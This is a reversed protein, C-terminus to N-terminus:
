LNGKALTADKEHNGLLSFLGRTHFYKDPWRYNNSRRHSGRKKEFCSLISRLRRRMYGDLEKFVRSSRKTHKFYNYWGRLMPNLEEITTMLSKGKKRPTKDKIKARLSNITKDRPRRKNETFFYGLFEFGEEKTVEVIKTKEPHLTLKLQTMVEKVIELGRNAEEATKCMLVFDDAYRIIKVGEKTMREDLRHLYINSLLPSIVSGQPSGVIPTWRKHGEMIDNSLFKKLINLVWKDAIREEVFSMLLKHDITDFYGKIDADVVFKYGEDLYQAVERLADKAGRNPRFGYSCSLFMVEFIAEIALKIANEVVRQKVTPIGLPRKATSGPKDILVRKVPLPEFRNNELEEKLSILNRPFQESFREITINDIGACGKNERVIEFAHSITTHRCIKDKLSYWKWGKENNDLTQLMPLSWVCGSASPHKQRLRGYEEQEAETLQRAMYKASRLRQTDEIGIRYGAGRREM